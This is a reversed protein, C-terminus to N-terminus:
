KGCFYIASVTPGGGLHSTPYATPIHLPSTSIDKFFFLIPLFSESPSIRPFSIIANFLLSPVIGEREREVGSIPLYHNRTSFYGFDGSLDPCVTLTQLSLPPPLGLFVHWFKTSPM